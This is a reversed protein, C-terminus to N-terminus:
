WHDRLAGVRIDHRAWHELLLGSAALTDKWCDPAATRDTDHLLVTGGPRLSRTVTRAISECTAISTWDRGWSTWLVTQLDTAAAALLGEGTLVGYPPRYWRVAAGGADELLHKTRRLEDVLTGPRKAALCQHNWGHVAVEHGSDVMHKVLDHNKEVHEGLLFFTATRDHQALVNLFHPTSRRDPGDDYTLAVHPEPSIGALTPTLTRRVWPLSTLAPGWQAAVMLASLTATSRKM